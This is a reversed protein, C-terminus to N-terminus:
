RFRGAVDEFFHANRVGAPAPRNQMRLVSHPRSWTLDTMPPNLNAAPLAAVKGFMALALSVTVSMPLGEPVAVVIVIVTYVFADLLYKIVDFFRANFEGRFVGWKSLGFVLLTFIEESFDHRGRLHLSILKGIEELELYQSMRRKTEEFGDQVANM